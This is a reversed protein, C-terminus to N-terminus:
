ATVPAGFRNAEPKGRGICGWLAFAASVALAAVQVATNLPAGLDIRHIWTAFAAVLLVGPLVLLWGSRSMDHLRRASVVAGPFLLVPLCWASTLSPVLFAYFAAVALIIVLAAAFEGQSSRGAGNVFRVDFSLRGEASEGATVAHPHLVGKYYELYALMLLGNLAFAALGLVVGLPQHELILSWFLACTSVPMVVCLALPVLLGTLVLAGTVLEIAMAVDLMKSHSFANMLQVALDEHGAPLPWLPFFFHSIANGLMWAGFIVRGVLVLHKM